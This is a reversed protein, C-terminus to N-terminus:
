ARPRGHPFSPLDGTEYYDGKEATHIHAAPRVGTPADLAGLAIDLSDGDVPRWFLFGGCAACFGRDARPSSRWWRLTEGSLLRFGALPTAVGAWVHGSARRCERCHCYFTTEAVVGRAEFRVAGCACRGTLVRDSV